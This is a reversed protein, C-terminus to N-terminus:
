ERRLAVAPDILMARRAPIWHAAVVVAALTVTSLAFAMPDRAGVGFLMSELLGALLLAGAFGAALGAAVTTVCGGLILRLVDAPRAGLAMRVGVERTRQSVTVAVVGYLGIAALVVALAAFAALLGGVFRHRATTRVVLNELAAVSYVPVSPDLDHLIARVAAAVTEPPQRTRLVLVLFSDTVQAQPMYMQLNPPADLTSHRVDGVVGVITRWPGRDAGGTRVRRGIPNEGPFLTRATSRAIVMVPMSDMRDEDTFLRGAELPIRMTRFYDSTVSYREVSASESPNRPVRGEVHFGWQDWNGSMPIQGAAAAAEVGPLASARSVVQNTFALVQPDEAYAAGVLSYQLSLVGHPDFGPDVGFLRSVSKVMLVAGALLVFALALDAVVLLQRARDRGGVSGRSDVALPPGGAPSAARLAPIVGAVLGIVLSAAIAYALVPGNLAIRDLRPLSAPAFAVLLDLASAAVAIGLAGGLGALLLSETMLQRVLRSRGAGLASRVAMERERRFGRVLLLNAVNACAILLVFAVAGLLTFLVGRVPGAFVEALQLVAVDGRPYEQPFQRTLDTRIANLESAADDTSVGPRLRALARLHQCSRCASSDSADYGLPAWMEARQYLQQSVLPEYDAPLVGLIQYDWDNMRVSRGIVSRDAGFKRRWLGDSIVLVRWRGAVDDDARFDRGLAPRVALMAFYNWSVRMAPVREAEGSVVLTPTWSRVVATHEFARARERYDRWTAFGINSPARTTSRDGFMVLRDPDAFPLPQLVVAHVVSFVATNLGIGLALTVLAALTFGPARRLMRGGFRVDQALTELWPLTRQERWAEVIQTGSGLRLKAERAAADPALGQGRLQRELMDRHFRLEDDLDRVDARRFVGFLRTLLERPTM